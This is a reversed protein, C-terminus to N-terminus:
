TPSLRYAREGARKRVRTRSGGGGGGASRAPRMRRSGPGRYKAAAHSLAFSVPKGLLRQLRSGITFPRAPSLVADMEDRGETIKDAVYGGLAAAWPLGAGAGAFYVQPLADSQGVIPLFDKSVGLLGPWFYDLEIRVSPFQEALYRKMTRVVRPSYRTERPAYTHRLDSAGVLLRGEGTMRFYQYVLDSDWVMLRDAPFIARIDDDRLPKSIALFTQVHYVAAAALGLAPLSHDAFVAVTRASLTGQPCEVGRRTLRTVPTGEYIRTGGRELADRLARCYAYSDIGFTGAYRVGGHYSRTGLVSELATREYLTSAQGQSAHSRHEPEIVRRFTRETRAVFLSDQVQHDCDIDLREITQRIRSLGAGAFDWLERGRAEGHVSVLDLLALESDPTVFGSTRGSAGAGCFAREVVAVQLGREALADACTLGAMGGGVVVVESSADGALPAVAPTTGGYWYVEPNM